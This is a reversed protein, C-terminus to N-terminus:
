LITRSFLRIGTTQAAVAGVVIQGITITQITKM